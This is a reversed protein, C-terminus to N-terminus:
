ALYQRRSWQCIKEQDKEGERRAQAAKACLIWLVMMLMRTVIPMADIFVSSILYGKFSVVADSIHFIPRARASFGFFGPKYM